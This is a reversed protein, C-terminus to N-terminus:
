QKLAQSRLDEWRGMVRKLRLSKTQRSGEIYWTLTGTLSAQNLSGEVRPKLPAKPASMRLVGNKLSGALSTSAPVYGEYEDWQGTVMTSARCRRVIIETGVDDDSEDIHRVDSYVM